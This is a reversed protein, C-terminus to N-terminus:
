KKAMYYIGVGALAAIGGVALYTMTKDEKEVVSVQDIGGPTEPGLSPIQNPELINLSCQSSLQNRNPVIFRNHEDLDDAILPVGILTHFEGKYGAEHLKSGIVSLVWQDNQLLTRVDEPQLVYGQGVPAGGRIDSAYIAMLRAMDCDYVSVHRATDIGPILENKKNLHSVAAHRLLNLCDVKNMSFTVVSQGHGVDDNILFPLITLATGNLDINTLGYTYNLLDTGDKIANQTWNIQISTDSM